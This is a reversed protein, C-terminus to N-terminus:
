KCEDMWTGDQEVSVGFSWIWPLQKNRQRVQAGGLIATNVRLDALGLPPLESLDGSPDRVKLFADRAMSYNRAHQHVSTDVSHIATWARTKTQQTRAGRVQTRFLASKFGLALRIRHISDNAQAHRLKAENIALSTAGHNICWEWGLTSPLLLPIDEANSGEHRSANSFRVKPDPVGSDDVDDVNDYEEYDGLSSIMVDDMPQHYLLFGDAQLQFRDISKQLRTRKNGITQSEEV